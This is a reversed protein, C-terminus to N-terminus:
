NIASGQALDTRRLEGLFNRLGNEGVKRLTGGPQFGAGNQRRPKILNGAPRRNVHDAALRAAL